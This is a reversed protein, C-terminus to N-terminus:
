KKRKERKKIVLLGIALSFITLEYGPTVEAKTTDTTSTSTTTSDTGTTETEQGITLTAEGRQIHPSTFDDSNGIAWIIDITGSKPIDNDNTDGTSLNRSFEITTAGSEETGNFTQFNNTGGIDVDKPHNSGFANLSYADYLTVIGDNDVWGYALDADLMSTTPDFGIAIWGTTQGIMGVYITSDNITWYLKFLDNKFSKSSEYENNQVIGDNIPNQETVNTIAFSKGPYILITFLVLLGLIKVLVDNRSRM